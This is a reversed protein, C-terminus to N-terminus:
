ALPIGTSEKIKKEFDRCSFKGGGELFFVIKHTQSYLRTRYSVPDTASGSSMDSFLTLGLHFKETDVNWSKDIPWERKNKGTGYIICNKNLDITMEGDFGNFVKCADIFSPSTAKILREEFIWKAGALSIEEKRREALANKSDSYLGLETRSQFTFWKDEPMKKWVNIAGCQLCLYSPRDTLQEKINSLKRRIFKLEQKNLAPDDSVVVPEFCEQCRRDDIEIPDVEISVKNRIHRNDFITHCENCILIQELLFKSVETLDLHKTIRKAEQENLETFMQTNHKCFSCTKLNRKFSILFVVVITCLVIVTIISYLDM